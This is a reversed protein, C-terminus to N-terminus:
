AKCPALPPGCLCDNGVYASAPFKAAPIKGCLHNYSVNLSDLGSVAGPLKGYVLNKSLDLHKLTSVIRLKGMDFKLKNRAAWFGVLYDTSNLLWVPSGSIENGSLDIYDYFYTEKPRWQSLNMKIGCNALKLSFIIPSSTVWAPITNLHFKNNSLHLSEIGKVNMVPFPDVLCNYSLDLNFIKTLNAFTKPVVGTLKNGSLDLTDLSQFRGLFDPIQGTLGNHGLELYGLKPALSSISSPINGSFKNHSLRLIRLDTLASWIDPIRGSLRNFELSLFTLNKLQGVGAPVTGSLLNNGLKLQSLQTLESISSPIPGSFQNGAFSLAELKKLKGLNEPIQGSLKNNEIYVYKLEPLGFLLDPFKGTINRLNQLYIGDLHQIKVLSPSITGSLYGNSKDPQGYVSIATVRNNNLCTIGSWSCCDTGQKWSNLIGSPDYTIGSKFALLGAEDDVHCAASAERLICLSLVLFLLTDSFLFHRNKM